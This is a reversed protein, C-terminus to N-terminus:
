IVNQAVERVGGKGGKLSPFILFIKTLPQKQWLNATKKRRVSQYGHYGEEGTNEGELPVRSLAEVTGEQSFIL